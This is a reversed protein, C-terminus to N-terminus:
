SGITQQGEQHAKAALAIAGLIGSHQGLGPAVVYDDIHMLYNHSIYGRLSEILKPKILEILQPQKMVGGGMVIREPSLCLTYTHLAKALYDAELHWAPHDATLDLASDVRWRAKIAPGSALGELCNQHYPCVGEFDDGSTVPLLIHGAELHMAGHVLQDDLVAGVGIGTGVTIYIVSRCGQAAGWRQESLAAANVDTDFGISVPFYQRFAGVIDFNKWALKPTSTIYGYQDSQLDLEIPGFCAIGIADIGQEQDIAKMWQLIEPLTEAPTKTEFRQGESLDDPGTGTACIFKTGGAEIGVYVGM